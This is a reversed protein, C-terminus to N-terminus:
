GFSSFLVSVSRSFAQFDHALDSSTSLYTVVAGKKLSYQSALSCYKTKVDEISLDGAYAM